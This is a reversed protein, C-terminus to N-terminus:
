PAVQRADAVGGLVGVDVAKQVNSDDWAPSLTILPKTHAHTHTHTHTRAHMCTHGHTHGCELLLVAQAILVLIPVCIPRSQPLQEAHM